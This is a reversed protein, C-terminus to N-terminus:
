SGNVRAQEYEREYKLLTKSSIQYNMQAWQNKNVIQGKARAALYHEVIQQRESSPYAFHDTEQRTM